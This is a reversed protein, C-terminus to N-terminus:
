ATADDGCDVGGRARDDPLAFDAFTFDVAEVDVRVGAVDPCGEDLAAEGADM